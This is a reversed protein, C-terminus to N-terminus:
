DNNSAGSKVSYNDQHAIRKELGMKKASLNKIIKDREDVEILLEEKLRQELDLSNALEM